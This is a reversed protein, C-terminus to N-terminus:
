GASFTASPPDMIVDLIFTLTEGTEARGSKSMSKDDSLMGPIAAVAFAQWEYHNDHSALSLFDLPRLEMIVEIKITNAGLFPQETTSSNYNVQGAATGALTQELKWSATLTGSEGDTMTLETSGGYYAEM